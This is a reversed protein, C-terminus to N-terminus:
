DELILGGCSGNEVIDRYVLRHSLACAIEPGAIPRGFNRLIAAEDVQSRLYEEGVHDADVADVIVFDIGCRSLQDTIAKRRETARAPAVVYVRRALGLGHLTM